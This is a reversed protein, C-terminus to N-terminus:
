QTAAFTVGVSLHLRWRQEDVGYAADLRLPGVPSRYHLGAGVGVAPRLENWRDAASGADVFLAGFLAPLRATLSHELEISGTTVVRGGVVVLVLAALTGGAWRLARRGRRRPPPRDAGGSPTTAVDTDASM